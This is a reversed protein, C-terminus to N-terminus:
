IEISFSLLIDFKFSFIYLHIFYSVSFNFFFSNIVLFLAVFLSFSSLIIFLKINFINVNFLFEFIKNSIIGAYILSKGEIEFGFKFCIFINSLEEIFSSGNDFSLINNNSIISFLWIGKRWIGLFM